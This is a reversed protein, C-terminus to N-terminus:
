ESFDQHAGLILRLVRKRFRMQIVKAHEPVLHVRHKFKMLKLILLLRIQKDTPPVRQASSFSSFLDLIKIVDVLLQLIRINKSRRPEHSQPLVVEHIGRLPVCASKATMRATIGSPDQILKVILLLHLKSIRVHVLPLLLQNLPSLLRDPEGYRAFLKVRPDLLLRLKGHSGVLSAEGFDLLLGVRHEM